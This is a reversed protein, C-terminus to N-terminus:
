LTECVEMQKTCHRVWRGSKREPQITYIKSSTANTKRFSQDTKTYTTPTYICQGFAGSRHSSQPSSSMLPPRPPLNLLSQLKLPLNFLLFEHFLVNTKCVATAFHTHKGPRTNVEPMKEAVTKTGIPQVARDCICFSAGM